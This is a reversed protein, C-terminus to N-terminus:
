PTKGGAPPAPPTAPPTAAAPAAAPTVIATSDATLSDTPVMLAASDPMVAPQPVVYTPFSDPATGQYRGRLLEQQEPTLTNQDPYPAVLGHKVGWLYWNDVVTGTLLIGIGGTFTTLVAFWWAWRHISEMTANFGM